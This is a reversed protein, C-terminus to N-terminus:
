VEGSSGGETAIVMRVECSMGGKIKEEEGVKETTEFLEGGIAAFEVLKNVNTGKDKWVAALALAPVACVVLAAIVGATLLRKKGNM